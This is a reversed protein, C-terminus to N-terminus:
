DSAAAGGFVADAVVLGGAFHCRCVRPRAAYGPQQGDAPILSLVGAASCLRRLSRSLLVRQGASLSHALHGSILSVVFDARQEATGYLVEFGVDVTAAAALQLEESYEGRSQVM